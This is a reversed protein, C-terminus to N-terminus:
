GLLLVMRMIGDGRNMMLVVIVVIAVIAIIVLSNDVKDRKKVM